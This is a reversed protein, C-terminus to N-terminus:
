KFHGPVDLMWFGCEEFIVGRFTASFEAVWSEKGDIAEFQYLDRRGALLSTISLPQLRYDTRYRAFRIAIVSPLALYAVLVFAGAVFALKWYRKVTRPAESLYKEAKKQIRRKEVEVLNFNSM